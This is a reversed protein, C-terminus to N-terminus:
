LNKVMGAMRKPSTEWLSNPNQRFTRNETGHLHSLKMTERYKIEREQQCTRKTTHLGISVVEGLKVLQEVVAAKV